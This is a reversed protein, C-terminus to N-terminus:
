ALTVNKSTNNGFPLKSDFFIDNFEELTLNLSVAIVRAEDPTFLVKGREKKAYADVSKEIVRAMDTQTKNQSVRKGKLLSTNM